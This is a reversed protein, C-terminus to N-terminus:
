MKLAAGNPHSSTFFDDVHSSFSSTRGFKWAAVWQLKTCGTTKSTDAYSLVDVTGQGQCAALGNMRKLHFKWNSRVLEIWLAKM